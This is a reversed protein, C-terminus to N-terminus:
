IICQNNLYNEYEQALDLGCVDHSDWDGSFELASNQIYQKFDEDTHYHYLAEYFDKEARTVGFGLYREPHKKNYETYYNSNSHRDGKLNWYKNKCENCCFAQQWQRKIFISNCVPCNLQEGCKASKNRDYMKKRTTSKLVSVKM